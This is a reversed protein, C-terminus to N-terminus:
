PSQEILQKNYVKSICTLSDVCNNSLDIGERVACEPPGIFDAGLEAASLILQDFAFRKTKSGELLMEAKKDRRCSFGTATGADFYKGDSLQQESLFTMGRVKELAFSPTNYYNHLNVPTACASLLCAAATLISPKYNM